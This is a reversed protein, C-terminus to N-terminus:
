DDGNQKTSTLMRIATDLGGIAVMTVKTKVINKQM